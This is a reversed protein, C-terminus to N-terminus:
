ELLCANVCFSPMIREFQSSPNSKCCNNERSCNELLRHSISTTYFESHAKGALWLVNQWMRWMGSTFYFPLPAQAFVESRIARTVCKTGRHCHLCCTPLPEVSQPAITSSLHIKQLFLSSCLYFPCFTNWLFKNNTMFIILLTYHLLLFRLIILFLTWVSTVWTIWQM